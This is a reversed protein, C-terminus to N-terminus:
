LDDDLNCICVQITASVFRSSNGFHWQWLQRGVGPMVAASHEACARQVRDIWVHKDGCHRDLHSCYFLPCYLAFMITLSVPLKSFLIRKDVVRILIAVVLYISVFIVGMILIM